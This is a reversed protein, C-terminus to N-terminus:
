TNSCRLCHGLGNTSPTSDRLVFSLVRRRNTLTIRLTYRSQSSRCTAFSRNGDCSPCACQLEGITLAGTIGTM